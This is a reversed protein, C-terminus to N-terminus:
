NCNFVLPTSIENWINLFLISKRHFKSTESIRRYHVPVQMQHQAKLKWGSNKKVKVIKRCFLYAIIEHPNFIWYHCRLLQKLRNWLILMTFNCFCNQIKMYCVCRRLFNLIYCYHLPHYKLISVSNHRIDDTYWHGSYIWYRSTSGTFHGSCSQWTRYVRLRIHDVGGGFYKHPAASLGGSNFLAAAAATSKTAWQNKASNDSNDFYDM